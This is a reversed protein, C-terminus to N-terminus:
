RGTDEPPSGPAAEAGPERDERRRLFQIRTRGYIREDELEFAPTHPVAEDVDSEWVVLAGATVRPSTTMKELAKHALTTHYPPDLFWLDPTEQGLHEELGQNFTCREIIARRGARTRQANEKILATSRGSRDFFYARRAGRSIAELGLAGSGAFGDVVVLDHVDGLISFLSERVRDSTPRIADTPLSALKRGRASGAIIRM